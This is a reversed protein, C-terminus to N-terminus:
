PKSYLFPNALGRKRYKNPIRFGKLKAIEDNAIEGEFAIRGNPLSVWRNVIFVEKVIGSVVALVYKYDEAKELNADWSQRTAEYISGGRENITQITTKIIIYKESPETYEQINYSM